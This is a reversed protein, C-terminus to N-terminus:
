DKAKPGTRDLNKQGTGWNAVDIGALILARAFFTQASFRKDLFIVGLPLVV